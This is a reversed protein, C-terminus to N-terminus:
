LTGAAEVMAAFEEEFYGTITEPDPVLGADTIVGLTAVGDYTFISVGMGLRGSQPVWFMGNRMRNGAIYLTHQPGAVNTMVATAKSGFINVVVDEVQQPTTGFVNLLGFFLVAEPSNKIQDMRQKVAALRELPTSLGLPLALFVLGFENGLEMAREPPRLNVPVIGRVDLDAAAAGQDPNRAILYNRLAGAMAAMLVDNVKTDTARGIAKIASLDVPKSWATRKQVGLKGKFVTPPDSPMVVARALVAASTTASETLELLHAPNLLSEMSEHVVTGAVRRSLDLASRAPKLMSRVPNWRRAAKPSGVEPLEIPASPETDMLQAIVGMMAIGDAMCHHFRMVFASGGMVNEVLHIQWLPKSYDLPMSALDGLLKQLATMDGAGPLAVTHVHNDYDFTTDIEYHPLGIPLRSEVVRMRFRDLVLLRAELTARMRAYDISGDLLAVSTVMMLNTPDEMHLWATDVPSLTIRSQTM